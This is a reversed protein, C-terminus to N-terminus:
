ITGSRLLAFREPALFQNLLTDADLPPLPVVPSTAVTQYLVALQRGYKPLSFQHTVIQHNHQLITPCNTSSVLTNPIIATKLAPNNVIRQLINRQFTEDLRGFDVRKETIAAAVARQIDDHQVTRGYAAYVPPLAHQIAQVFSDEGIWDLPILLREYLQSLDLGIREFEITIEPLKRGLLQRGALWPELFVLGFGEAISTTVVAFSQRLLAAFSGEWTEGLAFTVPLNLAQALAVWDNYRPQELPNQPARTVAFRDGPQALAAWLLFEGLNKRRIGRVPYLFLREQGTMEMGDEAPQPEGSNVANPLYHLQTEAVGATRLFQWDRRNLTAYHVHTGQPYLATGLKVADDGGFHKRLLAYNEPRGDEAFDHIQLLIHRRQQALEAVLAPVYLNKGLAHNHIHWVDPPGGLANAAADTLVKCLQRPSTQPSSNYGLPEIIVPDAVSMAAQPPEGACVVVQCAPYAEHLACVTHQIVRTVGGPRLHYHIIAVRM